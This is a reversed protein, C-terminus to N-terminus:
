GPVRDSEEPRLLVCGCVSRVHRRPLHPLERARPVAVAEVRFPRRPGGGLRLRDEVADAQAPREPCEDPLSAGGPPNELFAVAGLVAFGSNMRTQALRVPMSVSHFSHIVQRLAHPDHWVAPALM